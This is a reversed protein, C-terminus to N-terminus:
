LEAGRRGNRREPHVSGGGGVKRRSETGRGILNEHRLAARGRYIAGLFHPPVLDHTDRMGIDVAPVAIL